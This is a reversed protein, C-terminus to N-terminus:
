PIVRVRSVRFRVINVLGLVTQVVPWFNGGLASSRDLTSLPSYYRIVISICVAIVNFDYRNIKGIFEEDHQHSTRQLQNASDTLYTHMASFASLTEESCDPLGLSRSADLLQRELEM